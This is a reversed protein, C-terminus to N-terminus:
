LSQLKDSNVARDFIVTSGKKYTITIDELAKYALYAPKQPEEQTQNEPAIEPGVPEIQPTEPANVLAKYEQQWKSNKSMYGGNELEYWAEANENYVINVFDFIQGKKTEYVIKGTKTSPETRIRVASAILEIQDKKADRETPQSINPMILLNDGSVTQGEKIYLYNRPDKSYKNSNDTTYKKDGSKPWFEFHLHYGKAIGTKGMIGLKQGQEVQQGKKVVITNERLHWYWSKNGESDVMGVFLGGANDKGVDTIKGDNIAVIPEKSGYKTWFGLDIAKHGSKYGQSVWTRNVPYINFPKAM